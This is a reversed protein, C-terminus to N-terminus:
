CRIIDWRFHWWVELTPLVFGELFIPTGDPWQGRLVHLGLGEVVEEKLSPLTILLNITIFSRFTYCSTHFRVPLTISRSRQIAMTLADLPQSLDHMEQIRRPIRTPNTQTPIESPQATHSAEGGQQRSSAQPGGHNEPPIQEGARGEGTVASSSPPLQQGMDGQAQARGASPQPQSQSRDSSEDEM